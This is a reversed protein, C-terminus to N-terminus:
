LNGEIWQSFESKEVDIFFKNTMLSCMNNKFIPGLYYGVAYDEFYEKEIDYQKVLLNSM